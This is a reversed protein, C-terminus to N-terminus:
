WDGWFDLLVVKGRYDSLQMPNGDLDRGVIEPAPKGVDLDAKAHPALNAEAIERYPTVGRRLIDGYADRLTELGARAADPESKRMLKALGLTAEAKVIDHPANAVLGTFIEHKKQSPLVYQFEVLKVLQPSTPYEALIEDAIKSASAGMTGAEREWWTGRMLLLKAELAVETGAHTKAFAALDGKVAAFKQPYTGEGNLFRDKISELEAAPDQATESSTGPTEAPDDNAWAVGALTATVAVGLAIALATGIRHM